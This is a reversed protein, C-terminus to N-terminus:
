HSAPPAPNTPVPSAFGAGNDARTQPTVYVSNDVFATLPTQATNEPTLEVDHGKVFNHAFLGIPGLFVYSLLTATTSAGAKNEGEESKQQATLKIKYGDVGYVWDLQLALSGPHGHSGARDVKLVEALGGGGKAVVIWGDIMIDTAAKIGFTDGV